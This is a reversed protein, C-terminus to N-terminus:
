QSIINLILIVCYQIKIELIGTTAFVHAARYFFFNLYKFTTIISNLLIYVCISFTSLMSYIYQGGLKM